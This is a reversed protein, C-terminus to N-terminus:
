NKSSVAALQVERQQSRWLAPFLDCHCSASITSSFETENPMSPVGLLEATVLTSDGMEVLKCFISLSKHTPLAEDFRIASMIHRRGGCRAVPVFLGYPM